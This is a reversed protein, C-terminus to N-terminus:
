IRSRDDCLLLKLFYSGLSGRAVVDGKPLLLAHADCLFFYLLVVTMITM